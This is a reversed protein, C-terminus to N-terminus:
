ILEKPYIVQKEAKKVYEAIIKMNEDSKQMRGLCDFVYQYVQPTIPLKDAILINYIDKVEQWKKLEAYKAMLDFYLTSDILNYKRKGVINHERCSKLVSFARAVFNVNVCANVYCRLNETISKYENIKKQYVPDFRFLELSTEDLPESKKKLKIKHETEQQPNAIIFKNLSKISKEVIESDTQIKSQIKKPVCLVPCENLNVTKLNSYVTDSVFQTLNNRSLLKLPHQQTHPSDTM